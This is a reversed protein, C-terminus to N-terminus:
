YIHKGETPDSNRVETTIFFEIKQSIVGYLRSFADSTVSYCMVKMKVSTEQKAEEKVTFICGIQEESDDTARLPGCPM